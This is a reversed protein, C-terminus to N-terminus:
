LLGILFGLLGALTRFSLALFGFITLVAFFDVKTNFGAASFFDAAAFDLFSAVRALARSDFDSSGFRADGGLSFVTEALGAAAATVASLDLGCYYDLSLPFLAGFTTWL